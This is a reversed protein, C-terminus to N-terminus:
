QRGLDGLPGSQIGLSLGGPHQSLLGPQFADKVPMAKREAARLLAATMM